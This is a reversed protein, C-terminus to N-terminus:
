TESTPALEISPSIDGFLSEAPATEEKMAAPKEPVPEDAPTIKGSGLDSLKSLKLAEAVKGFSRAPGKAAPISEPRSIKMEPPPWAGGPINAAVPLKAALEASMPLDADIGTVGLERLFLLNERVDAILESLENPM